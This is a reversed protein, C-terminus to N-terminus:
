SPTASTDPVAIDVRVGDTNRLVTVTARYDPGYQGTLLFWQGDAYTLLRLGTYRWSSIEGKGIHTARVSPGTIDLFNQAFVTALPLRGPDEDVAKAAAHGLRQAYLTAAWFSGLIIASALLLAWPRFSRIPAGRMRGLSMACRLSVAAGLALFVAFVSAQVGALPQFLAFALGTLAVGGGLLLIVWTVRRWTIPARVRLVELVRGLTLLLLAAGVLWVAVGFTSDASRILYTEIPLNLMGQSIGFYGYYSRGRTYGFHVLLVTVLTAPAVASTIKEVSWRSGGPTTEATEPPQPYVAPDGLNPRRARRRQTRRPRAAM